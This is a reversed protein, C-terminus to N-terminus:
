KEHIDGKLLIQNIKDDILKKWIEQKDDLDFPIELYEYGKSKAYIRKYRDYLKRKYLEYEPTTKNRKAHHKHFGTISYHQIGMVEIILKLEKVENDFPLTNNTNKIKPSKPVITCKNEHLITYKGDNLNELYLRVKEQLYSENRELTCKPCHFDLRNSSNISRKYDEHKGGPCKWWIEFMSWPKYKYSSKKNKSSWLELAKPFLYGLSDRYHVKGNRISCYPCESGTSVANPTTEYSEHYYKENCKIWIRKNNSGRALKWPNIGINKEYDWYLELANKGYSNLLYQAISNCKLCISSGKYTTIKSIEKLESEHLGCPCKFYYKKGTGYTIESPKCDNLEYDWRDLVDQRDNKICWQEFSEGNALRTKQTNKSGYLIHACSNCYYKNKHLCKLYVNWAMLKPQPNKCNECDCKVLVKIGSGDKLDKINVNIKSSYSVTKRGKKDINRVIDYGLEEFYKINSSCLKVEVTESVLM